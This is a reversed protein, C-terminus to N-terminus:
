SGISDDWSTYYDLPLEYANSYDYVSIEKRSLIEWNTLEAEKGKQLVDAIWGGLRAADEDSVVPADSREDRLFIMDVQFPVSDNRLLFLLEDIGDLVRHLNHAVPLRDIAKVVPKQIANVIADPLVPRNYRRALWESFKRPTIRDNERFASQPTFLLLSMKEIQIRTVADAILAKERSESDLRRRMLFLRSSNKGAQHMINQDFTWYGRIVEVYPEHQSSRQIDCTQSSVILIDNADLVEHHLIWTDLSTISDPSFQFEESGTHQNSLALRAYGSFL